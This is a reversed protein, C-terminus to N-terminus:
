QVAETLAAQTFEGQEDWDTYCRNETESFLSGPISCPHVHPHIYAALARMIPLHEDCCTLSVPGDRHIGHWTADRGCHPEAPAPTYSCLAIRWEEAPEGIWPATV